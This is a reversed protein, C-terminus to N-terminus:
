RNDAHANRRPSGGVADPGSSRTEKRVPLNQEATFDTSRNRVYKLVTFVVPPKWKKATLRTVVDALIAIAHTAIADDKVVWGLVRGIKQDQM